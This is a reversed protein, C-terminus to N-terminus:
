FEMRKLAKVGMKLPIAGILLSATAGIAFVIWRSDKAYILFLGILTLYVLHAALLLSGGFGSIIESPNTSEFNPFKAGLGVSLGTLAICVTVGLGTTFLVRDLPIELMWGSLFVLPLTLFVSFLTGLLFKELLLTSFRIPALTIIWFRSGELSIMPFIFRMSFSSLVIYTGVTNLVFILNKWFSKLVHFELNRLNAFYLVLLGFFIILQSWEAPDRFFIKLDKEFLAMAHRPPYPIRDVLRELGRRIKVRRLNEIEGYDQASLFIQPYFRGAVAYGPLLFFLANAILVLGYFIGERCHLINGTKVSALAQLGRTTWYSPLLPHKAFTIHPLYGSMIGAISGQEKIIEPSARLLLVAALIIGALLAWRQRRRTPLLQVAAVATLTGLSAALVIFPIFFVLCLLPYLFSHIEKHIGYAAMFPVAIFLFAWSSLWLAELLKLFYISTWPVSRSRLFTIEPSRFLAAYASVASSIFLMFFLAFTFLYFTEDILIPGFPEQARFFRFSAHFFFFLGTAALIFFFVLTLAEAKSRKWLRRASNKVLTLKLLILLFLTETM